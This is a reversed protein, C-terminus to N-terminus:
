AAGHCLGVPGVVRLEPAPHGGRVAVRVERDLVQREADKRRGAAAARRAGAILDASREAAGAALEDLRDPLASSRTM